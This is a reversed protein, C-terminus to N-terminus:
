IRDKPPVYNNTFRGSERFAKIECEIAEDLDKEQLENQKQILQAAEIRHSNMLSNFGEYDLNGLEHDLQLIRMEEYLRDRKALIENITGSIYYSKNRRGLPLFPSSVVGVIATLLIVGIITAIM